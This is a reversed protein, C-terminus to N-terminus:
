LTRGTRCEACNAIHRQRVELAANLIEGLAEALIEDFHADSARLGIDRCVERLAHEVPCDNM